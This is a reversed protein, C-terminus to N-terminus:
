KVYKDYDYDDRALMMIRFYDAGEEHLKLDEKWIERIDSFMKFTDEKMRSYLEEKEFLLDLMEVHLKLEDMTTWMDQSNIIGFKIATDPSYTLEENDYAPIIAINRPEYKEDDRQFSEGEFPDVYWMFDYDYYKDGYEEEHEEMYEGIVDEWVAKFKWLEEETEFVVVKPTYCMVMVTDRGFTMVKDLKEESFNLIRM